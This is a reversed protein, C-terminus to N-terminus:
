NEGWNGEGFYGFAVDEPTSVQASAFNINNSGLLASANISLELFTGAVLDTGPGPQGPDAENYGSWPGGGTITAANTAVCLVFGDCGMTNFNVVTEWVIGSGGPDSLARQVSVSTLVGDVFSLRALADGESDSGVVEWPSGHGLRHLEQNFEIEIHSDGIAAVRELGVYYLSEGAVNPEVYFYVRSVDDKAAVLGNSVPRENQPSLATLDSNVGASTEDWVFNADEGGFLTVFEPVGSADNKVTGDPNFLGAWDNLHGDISVGGAANVVGPAILVVSLLVRISSRSVRTRVTQYHSRSM